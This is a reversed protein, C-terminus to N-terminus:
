EDEMFSQLYEINREHMSAIQKELERIRKELQEIVLEKLALEDAHERAERDTM